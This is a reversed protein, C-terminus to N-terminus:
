SHRKGVFEWVQAGYSTSILKYNQDFWAILETSFPIRFPPDSLVAYDAAALWSQWAAVLKPDYPGSSPPLTNPDYAIWTSFTDVVAPCNSRDPVFRDATITLAPEDTVTCAGAPVVHEVALGQDGVTLIAPDIRDFRTAQNVGWVTAAAVTAIAAFAVVTPIMPRLRLRRPAVSGVFRALRDCSVGALLAVFVAPFYTYHFHFDPSIFMAAVSLCGTALAFWDLRTRPVPVVFAAAVIGAFLATLVFALTHTAHVSPLGPIGTIYMLRDAASTTVPAHHRLFQIAVLDRLFNRPALVFFPLSPILFGAAVGVFVPRADRRWRPLCCAVAVAAPLVAWLKLTCAFGFVLGALLLRRRGAPEDGTFMVTVGLLCFLLLYPELMLTKDATLAMPFLALAVGGVLAPVVGRRRLVFAVLGANAATVFATLVRIDAMLSRTGIIRGVLGLPALLLPLGPPQPYVFDKYPLTGDVFRMVTGLYFGDDYEDVGHLVGPLSLQHVCIGLAVAFAAVSAFLGIRPSSWWRLRSGAPPDTIASPEGSREALM